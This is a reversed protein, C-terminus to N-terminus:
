QQYAANLQYPIPELHVWAQKAKEPLYVFWWYPLDEM